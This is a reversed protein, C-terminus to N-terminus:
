NRPSFLCHLGASDSLDEAVVGAQVVFHDLRLMQAPAQPIASQRRKLAAGPLEVLPLVTTLARSLLSIRRPVPM